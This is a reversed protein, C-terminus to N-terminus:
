LAVAPAAALGSADGLYKDHTISLPHIGSPVHLREPLILSHSWGIGPQRCDGRREAAVQHNRVSSTGHREIAVQQVELFALNAFRVSGADGGLEDTAWRPELE